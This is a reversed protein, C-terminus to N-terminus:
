THIPRKDLLTPQELSGTSGGTHGCHIVRRAGANGLEGRVAQDDALAELVLTVLDDLALTQTCAPHGDQPQILGLAHLLGVVPAVGGGAPAECEVAVGVAEVAAM